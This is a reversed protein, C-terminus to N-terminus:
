INCAAADRVNGYPYPLREEGECALTWETDKCLRKGEAECKDAAEEWTVAVDPTAGAVNPYEYKDICFHMPVTKGYCRSAPRFEACRDREPEDLIKTCFQGVAPCYDGQVEVMGAPCAGSSAASEQPAPEAARTPPPPKAPEPAIRTSTAAPTAAGGPHSSLVWRGPAARGAWAVTGFALGALSLVGLSSRRM